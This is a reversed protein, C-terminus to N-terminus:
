ATKFCWNPTVEKKEPTQNVPTFKPPTLRIGWPVPTSVPEPKVEEYQGPIYFTFAYNPVGERHIQARILDRKMLQERLLQINRDRHGIYKHLGVVGRGEVIDSISNLDKVETRNKRFTESLSEDMTSRHVPVQYNIDEVLRITSQDAFPQYTYEVGDGKDRNKVCHIGLYLQGTSRLEERAIVFIVDANQIIQLSEGIQGRKIYSVLNCHNKTRADLLKLDAERNLQGATIFVINHEKAITCEENIIAGLQLRLDSDRYTPNQPNIRQLYDHIMCVVEYGRGKMREIVQDFFSTDNTYPKRYIVVLNVPDQDSLGLGGVSRMDAIVKGVDNTIFEQSSTTINYLREITENKSNEQTIYVICPKLNPDKTKIDKNHHKIQVALNLLFGSKGEGSVGLVVYGRGLKFGGGCLQNFGQMGTKLCSSPDSLVNYADMISQTFSEDELDMFNEDFDSKINDYEKSIERMASCLVRIKEDLEYIDAKKIERILDEVVDIHEFFYLKSSFLRINYKVHDIETDNLVRFQCSSLMIDSCMCDEIYSQIIFADNINEKEIRTLVSILLSYLNYTEDVYSTNPVVSLIAYLDRLDSRQIKNSDYSLLLDVYSILTSKSFKYRSVISESLKLQAIFSSAM